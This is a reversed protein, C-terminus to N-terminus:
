EKQGWPPGFDMALKSPPIAPNAGRILWQNSYNSVQWKSNIFFTVGLDVGGVLNTM